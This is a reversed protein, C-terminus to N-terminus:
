FPLYALDSDLRDLDEARVYGVLLFKGDTVESLTRSIEALSPGKPFVLVLQARHNSGDSDVCFLAELQAGIFATHENIMKLWDAKGLQSIVDVWVAGNLDPLCFQNHFCDPDDFVWITSM